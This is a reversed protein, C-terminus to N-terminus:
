LEIKQYAPQDEGNFEDIFDFLMENLDCALDENHESAPVSDEEGVIDFETAEITFGDEDENVAIEIGVIATEGHKTLLKQIEEKVEISAM